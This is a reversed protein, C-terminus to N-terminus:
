LYHWNEFNKSNLRYLIRQPTMNFKLSAEKISGCEFGDVLIKRGYKRIRSESLSKKHSESKVKPLHKWAERKITNDRIIKKTEETHRKGTQAKSMKLKTEESCKYGYRGDGGDTLNVLCGTKNSVRGFEEIYRIELKKAEDITLNSDVIDVILGYKNVFRNWMESRRSKRYARRGNGIGVYFVSGDSSKRHFYVYHNNM